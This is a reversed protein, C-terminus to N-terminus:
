TSTYILFICCKRKCENHPHNSDFNLYQDMNTPKRYVQVSLSKDGNRCVLTDFFALKSDNEKEVTFKIQEHLGNIHEYFGDLYLRKTILFVDDVYREWVKPPITTTQLLLKKM